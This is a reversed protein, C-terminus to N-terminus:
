DKPYKGKISDLWEKEHASGYSSLPPTYHKLLKQIDEEYKNALKQIIRDTSNEHRKEINSIDKKYKKNLMDLESLVNGFEKTVKDLKFLTIVYHYAGLIIAIALGGFFSRWFPDSLNITM